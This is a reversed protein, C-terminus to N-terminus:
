GVAAAVDLRGFRRVRVIMEFSREVFGAPV